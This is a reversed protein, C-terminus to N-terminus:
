KKEYWGKIIKLLPELSKRLGEFTDQKETNSDVGEKVKDLREQMKELDDAHKIKMADFQDQLKDLKKQLELKEGTLKEQLKDTAKEQAALNAQLDSTSKVIETVGKIVFQEDTLGLPNGFANIISIIKQVFETHNQNIDRVTTELGATKAREDALFKVQEDHMVQFEDLTKVKNHALFDSLTTDPMSPPIVQLPRLWGYVNTYNHTTKTCVSLTPWNQDFSVFSNADGSIFIAVHGFGGGAKKNWFMVDGKQPVGDPTNPIKTFNNKLILDTEYRTWFDAAGVVGSPQPLKLVDNVYQRFLDVCQGSYANDWDCKKGLWKSIFSDFTM